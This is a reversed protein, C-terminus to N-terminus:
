ISDSIISELLDAVKAAADPKALSRAGAGMRSRKERNEMLGSIIAWSNEPSIEKEPLMVSAGHAALVEANKRQHDHIASPFPVLISPLGAACIEAITSAGSRCLVLDAWAYAAPMDNIFAQVCDSSFGASEYRSRTVTLDRNGCQHLVSIGSKKLYPLLLPLLDNLAHAGQSGGLVLLNRSHSDRDKQRKEATACIAQRVPNGTLVCKDANFGHTDPLSICVKRAFKSLIRNASGPIANQEHLILPIKNLRAAIAPAFSAYGGFAIVLCPKISHILASAKIIGWIMRSFADLSKTGKGMIGRVPLGFFELGAKPVWIKEAGYDSGIFTIRASLHRKRIEEAVAIAPFIHGGTGGTTLIINKM